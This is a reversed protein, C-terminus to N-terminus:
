LNMNVMSDVANKPALTGALFKLSDYFAWSSKYCDAVGQGSRKKKVKQLKKNFQNRLNHVKRLVEPVELNMKLAVAKLEKEKM